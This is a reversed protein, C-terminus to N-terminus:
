ELYHELIFVFEAQSHMNTGTCNKHLKLPPRAVVRVKVRTDRQLNSSDTVLPQVQKRNRKQEM